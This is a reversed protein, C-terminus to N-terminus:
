KCEKHLHAYETKKVGCASQKIPLGMSHGGDTTLLYPTGAYMNVFEDMAQLIHSTCTGRLMHASIDEPGTLSSLLINKRAM